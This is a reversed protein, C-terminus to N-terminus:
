KKFCKLAQVSYSLTICEGDVSIAGVATRMLQTLEGELADTSSAADQEKSGLIKLSSFM